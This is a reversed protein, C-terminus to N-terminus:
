VGLGCLCPVRSEPAHTGQGSVGAHPGGHFPGWRVPGTPLSVPCRSVQYITPKRSFWVCAEKKSASDIKSNKECTSDERACTIGRCNIYVNATELLPKRPGQHLPFYFIRLEDRQVASYARYTCGRHRPGRDVPLQARSHEAESVFCPSSTQLIGQKLPM